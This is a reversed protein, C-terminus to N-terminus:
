TNCHINQYVNAVKSQYNNARSVQQNISEYQSWFVGPVYIFSDFIYYFTWVLLFTWDLIVQNKSTIQGKRIFIDLEIILDSYFVM